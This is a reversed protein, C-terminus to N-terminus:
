GGVLEASQKADFNWFSLKGLAPVPTELAVPHRFVFGFKGLFWPSDSRQVCAVLEVTGIIFGCRDKVDVPAPLGRGIRKALAEASRFEAPMLDRSSHIGIRGRVKTFWDRNEVDKVIGNDPFITMSAWPERVTLCPMGDTLLQSM